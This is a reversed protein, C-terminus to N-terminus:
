SQAPGSEKKAPLVLKVLMELLEFLFLFGFAIAISLAFYSLIYFVSVFYMTRTEFDYRLNWTLLGDAGDQSRCGSILLPASQSAM